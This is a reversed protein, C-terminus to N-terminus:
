TDASFGKGVHWRWASGVIDKIASFKPTWGLEKHARSADAVLVPPDGVRRPGYRVPVPRGVVEAAADLVDQVSHGRENGLNFVRYGPNGDLLRLARVHADALDVVHVYDRVCTGDKTDYDTGFVTVPPACGAASALVRPVLHTEPSHAEGIGASAAAGAANFYRLVISSTGYAQTYNALMREAAAKTDGYPNIPAPLMDETLLTGRGQGYVAATSSLVVRNIGTRRAQSLLTLTGGVNVDWYTAPDRASEGVESRAAFHLIGDPRNRALTSTLKEADRVDGVELPGWRVASRHGTSLNDYVVPRYGAQALALCAHSGVYGAGGTVLITEGATV